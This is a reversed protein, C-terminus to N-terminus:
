LITVLVIAVLIVFIVIYINKHCNNNGINSGTSNRDYTGCDFSNYDLSRTDKKSLGTINGEIIM